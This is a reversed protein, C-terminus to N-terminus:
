KTSEKRYFEEKGRKEKREWEGGKNRDETIEENKTAHTDKRRGEEKRSRVKRM